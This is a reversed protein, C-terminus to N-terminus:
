KSELSSYTLLYCVWRACYLMLSGGATTDKPLMINFDEGAGLNGAKGASEAIWGEETSRLFLSEMQSRYCLTGGVGVGGVGMWGDVFFFSGVKSGSVGLDLTKMWCSHHTRYFLLM